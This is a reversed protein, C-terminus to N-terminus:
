GVQITADDLPHVPIRYGTMPLRSQGDPLSEVNTFPLVTLQFSQTVGAGYIDSAKIVVDHTGVKDAGPTWVVVGDNASMGQPGDVIELTLDGGDPDSVLVEYRYALGEFARKLPAGLFVPPRNPDKVEIDFTQSVLAG